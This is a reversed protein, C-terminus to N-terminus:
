RGENLWALARQLVADGAAGPVAAGATPINAAAAAGLAAAVSILRRRNRRFAHPM